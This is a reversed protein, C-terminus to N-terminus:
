PDCEVTKRQGLDAEAKIKIVQELEACIRKLDDCTVKETNREDRHRLMWAWQGPRHEQMWEAFRSTADTSGHAALRPSLKHHWACLCIGNSLDWRFRLNQRRILHHANLPVTRSCVECHGVQKIAQSWLEDALGMLYKRIVTRIRTPTIKPFEKSVERKILKVSCGDKFMKTIKTKTVRKLKAMTKRESPRNIDQAM